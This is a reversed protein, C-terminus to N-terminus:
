GYVSKRLDVTIIRIEKERELVRYIVRYKGSRNRRLGELYPGKLFPDAPYTEPLKRIHDFIISASKPDSEAIEALRDKAEQTYLIQFM